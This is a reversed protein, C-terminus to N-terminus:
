SPSPCKAKLEALLDNLKRITIPADPGDLSLYFTEVKEVAMGSCDGTPLVEHVEASIKLLARHPASNNRVPKM